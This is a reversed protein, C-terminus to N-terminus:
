MCDREFDTLVQTRLPDRGTRTNSHQLLEVRLATLAAILERVRMERKALLRSSFYLGALFSLVCALYAGFYFRWM